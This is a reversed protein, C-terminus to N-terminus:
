LSFMHFAEAFMDNQEFCSIMATWTFIDRCDAEDFVRRAEDVM